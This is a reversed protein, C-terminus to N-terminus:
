LTEMRGKAHSGNPGCVWGPGVPDGTGNGYARQRSEWESSSIFEAGIESHDNGYARQRSKWESRWRALSLRLKFYLLKWVGKPTVEM